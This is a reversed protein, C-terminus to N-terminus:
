LHFIREIKIKLDEVFGVAFLRGEPDKLRVFRPTMGGKLVVAGGHSARLSDEKGLVVEDLHSLAEDITKVAKPSTRAESLVASDEVVFGGVRTRRLEVIHAGTGLARGIDDALSRIYTGKSCATRLKLFPPAFGEIDLSHILVTRPEREVEIGKRALEYLPRGDKKIASFVPPVQRISGRFGELAREIDAETILSPDNVGKEIVRGESDFTDTREGLKLTATYEKQLDSLYGAIKTAENLCVLLVGTALPDLTGAHGAKRAGFLRKAKTVADQSTIGRPKDLNLVLHM